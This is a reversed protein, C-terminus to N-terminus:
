AAQSTQLNNIMELFRDKGFDGKQIITQINGQLRERDESTINKATYILIPIQAGAPDERLKSGIDFPLSEKNVKSTLVIPIDKTKSERRLDYVLGSGGNPPLQTDILVALPQLQVAKRLAEQASAAIVVEYGAHSLFPEIREKVAPDNDAVLIVPPKSGMGMPPVMQVPREQIGAEQKAFEILERIHEGLRKASENIHAVFERREEPTTKNGKEDLLIESFGNIANLPSNLDHSQDYIVRFKAEFDRKAQALAPAADKNKGSATLETRLSDLQAQM